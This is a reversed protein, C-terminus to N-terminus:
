EHKKEKGLIEALQKKMITRGNMRPYCIILREGKDIKEKIKKIFDIQWKEM